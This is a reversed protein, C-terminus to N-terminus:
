SSEGAIRNDVAGMMLGADNRYLKDHLDRGWRAAAAASNHRDNMWADTLRWGERLAAAHQEALLAIVDAGVPEPRAADRRVCEELPVDTLDHVVFQALAGAADKVRGPIHPTLHTNDVVVDFGAIVAERVAADQVALATQEHANSWVARGLTGPRDLMARLDDLNVRRMRGGAEALLKYAATSKGSAPLGTMVHVTPFSRASLPAITM